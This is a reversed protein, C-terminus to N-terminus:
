IKKRWVSRRALIKRRSGNTIIRRNHTMCHDIYQELAQEQEASRRLQLFLHELRSEEAVPGRDNAAIAEPRTNGRLTVLRSEDINQTVLIHTGISLQGFAVSHPLSAVALSALAFFPVSKASSM